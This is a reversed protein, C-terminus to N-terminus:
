SVIKVATGYAYLEVVQKKSLLGDDVAVRYEFQCYIVADGKLRKCQKILQDKVGSFAKGPDASQFYGAKHSDFAFIADIVQFNKKIDGTSLIISM